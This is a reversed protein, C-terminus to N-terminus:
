QPIRLTQGATLSSPDSINNFSALQQYTLGFRLAIRYLNDGPQVTYTTFDQGNGGPSGANGNGGSGAGPIVLVQGASISAPNTIGNASALDGVSVGFRLAIRYLTDGSQITYTQTGGSNSPPPPQTVEETPEETETPQEEGEEETPEPTDVDEPEETEEEGPIIIGGEGEEEGGAEIAQQTQTAFQDEPSIEESGEEPQEGTEEGEEPPLPLQEQPEFPTLPVPESGALTCGALIITASISVIGTLVYRRTKERM